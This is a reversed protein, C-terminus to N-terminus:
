NLMTKLAGVLADIEQETNFVHCSIRMGQAPNDSAFDPQTWIQHQQWLAERLDKVRLQKEQWYISYLASTEGDVWPTRVTGAAVQSELSRALYLHLEKQRAAILEPGLKLQLNLAAELGLLRVVDCTGPWELRHMAAFSENYLRDGVTLPRLLDRYAPNVYLFGCGNPAGMWKHASGVWFPYGAIHVPGQGPAHAGDVLLAVGASALEAALAQLRPRWGTLCNIESLLVLKTKTSVLNLIGRCFSESGNFADLCYKRLAIGRSEALYRCLTNVSGHEQNTCVFEDGPERLLSQMIMQIGFTSNQTLMLDQAPVGFLSAAAIRARAWIEEDIFTMLTPNENLKEYGLRLARLVSDPKVGCSGSNLYIGKIAGPKWEARVLDFDLNSDSRLKEM